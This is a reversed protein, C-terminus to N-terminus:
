LPKFDHINLIYHQWLKRFLYHSSCIRDPVGSLVLIMIIAFLIQVSWLNLDGLDFVVMVQLVRSEEENLTLM